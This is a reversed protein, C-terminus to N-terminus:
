PLQGYLAALFQWGVAMLDAHTADEEGLLCFLGMRLLYNGAQLTKLVSVKGKGFSYCVTDYSTIAHPGLLQLWVTDGLNACTSNIDLVVGDWKEMEFLSMVRYIMVGRGTSWCCLSTVVM